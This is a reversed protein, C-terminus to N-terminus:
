KKASSKKKAGSKPAAAEPDPVVTIEGDEVLLGILTDLDQVSRRLRIEDYDSQLLDAV